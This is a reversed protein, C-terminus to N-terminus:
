KKGGRNFGNRSQSAAWQRLAHQFKAGAEICVSELRHLEALVAERDRMEARHHLEGNVLIFRRRRFDALALNADSLARDAVRLDDLLQTNEAEQVTGIM